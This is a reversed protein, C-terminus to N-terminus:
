AAVNGPKGQCDRPVISSSAILEATRMLTDHESAEPNASTFPIIEVAPRRTTTNRPGIPGDNDMVTSANGLVAVIQRFRKHDQNSKHQM